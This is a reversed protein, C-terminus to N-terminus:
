WFGTDAEEVSHNGTLQFFLPESCQFFFSKVNAKESSFLTALSEAAGSRGDLVTKSVWREELMKITCDGPTRSSGYERQPIEQNNKEAEADLDIKNFTTASSIRSRLYNFGEQYNATYCLLLAQYKNYKLEESKFISLACEKGLAITAEECKTFSKMIESNSGNQKGWSPKLIGRNFFVLFYLFSHILWQPRLACLHDEELSSLISFAYMKQLFFLFCLPYDVLFLALYLIPYEVADECHRQQKTGDHQWRTAIDVLLETFLYPEARMIDRGYRSLVEKGDAWSLGRLYDIAKQPCRLDFFTTAVFDLHMNYEKAVDCALEFEHGRKLTKMIIQHDLKIEKTSFLLKGMREYAGQKMYCHLLLQVHHSSESSPFLKKHQSGILQELYYTLDQLQRSKMYKVVVYSPEQFGITDVYQDMAKSYLGKNYLSDGFLKSVISILRNGYRDTVAIESAIEKAVEYLEKELFIGLKATPSLETLTQLHLPGSEEGASESSTLITISGTDVSVYRIDVFKQQNRGIARIHHRCDFCQLFATGSSSTQHTLICTYCRFCYIQRPIRGSPLDITVINVSSASTPDFSSGSLFSGVTALQCCGDDVKLVALGGSNSMAACGETAGFPIPCLLEVYDGNYGQCWVSVIDEHVTYLISHSINKRGHVHGRGQSARTVNEVSVFLSTQDSKSVPALGLFTLKGKSYRSRIHLTDAIRKELDGVYLVASDHSLQVCISSIDSSVALNIIPSCNGKKSNNVDLDAYPDLLLKQERVIHIKEFEGGSSASQTDFSLLKLHLYEDIDDMGVVVLINREESYLLHTITMSFIPVIERGRGSIKDVLELSGDTHGFCITNCACCFCSVNKTNLQLPKQNEEQFLKINQWSSM